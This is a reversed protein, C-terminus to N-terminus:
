KTGDRRSLSMALSFYMKSVQHRSQLACHTLRLVWCMKVQMAVTSWLFSASLSSCTGLSSSEPFKQINMFPYVWIGRETELVNIDWVSLCEILMWTWSLLIFSGVDWIRANVYDYESCQWYKCVFVSLVFPLTLFFVKRQDEMLHRYKDINPVALLKPM